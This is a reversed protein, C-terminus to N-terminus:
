NPVQSPWNLHRHLFQFTGEGHLTHPGNFFEIEVDEGLGLQVYHRRVKAFEWAVWEDPAVGDHHGREVMFPRPTMLSALEAYDAVHGMNWEYMEYERTFMYSYPDEHSVNKRIWENFDASCISLCYRPSDLIDGDRIQGGSEARGEGSLLPPVRVATKGGYSLGYFAIRDPDVWPLTALWRLTQRHQEIIYSFLSRGLPNSKRQIVRFRDEGRYPNQPAYVIFGREVLQTSVGKYAQWASSAEDTTITDMPTGELGHQFVVVPRREGDKLDKPLLLIGGAVVAASPPSGLPSPQSDDPAPYVDLLVEYGVCSPEDLIRRTHANPAVTVTPLKGIMQEHVYARYRAATEVWNDVSSRDAQEWFKARVKDCSHLLRQTFLVLETLQRRQRTDADISDNLPIAPAAAVLPGTLGLSELLGTRAAECFADGHGERGQADQSVILRIDDGVGLKEFHERARSFEARVSDLPATAIRGPAAAKAGPQQDQTPIEMEPVRCAEILLPRPAILGAIDADGFESLLSWVNREIPERWLGEREQFYGSVLCADFREDIAAAYMALLGGEGAGAVAVPLSPHHTELYDAAALVKQVEYGILHRGMEFAMRYVFERHSLNTSRIDPHGSDTHDRNILSPILVLCDNGALWRAMPFPVDGSSGEGQEVLQEPEWAADPLLVVAARPSKEPVVLLGQATVGELVTWMVPVALPRSVPQVTLDGQEVAMRVAVREDVAGIITRLRERHPAVSAAYSAASRYDRAWKEQRRDRSAALEKEAFRSIGDVMVVDLPEALELRATGALVDPWQRDAADCPTSFVSVSNSILLVLVFQIHRM